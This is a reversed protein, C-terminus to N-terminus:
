MGLNSLLADVDTQGTAVDGKTVGPVVPGQGSGEAEGM